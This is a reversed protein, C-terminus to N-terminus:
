RRIISAMCPSLLFKVIDILGVFLSIMDTFRHFSPNPKSTISLNESDIFLMWNEATVVAVTANRTLINYM